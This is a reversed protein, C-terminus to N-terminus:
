PVSLSLLEKPFVASDLPCVDSMLMVDDSMMTCSYVGQLGFHVKLQSGSCAFGETANFFYDGWLPKRNEAPSINAPAPGPPHLMDLPHIKTLGPVKVVSGEALLPRMISWM